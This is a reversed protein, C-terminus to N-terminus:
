SHESKQKERERLKEYVLNLFLQMNTLYDEAIVTALADAADDIQGYDLEYDCAEVAKSILDEPTKM